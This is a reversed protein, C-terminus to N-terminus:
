RLASDNISCVFRALGLHHQRDLIPPILIRERHPRPLRHGDLTIPSALVIAAAPNLARICEVRRASPSRTKSAGSSLPPFPYAWGLAV